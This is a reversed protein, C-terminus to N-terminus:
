YSVEVANSGPDIYVPGVGIPDELILPATTTVTVSDSDRTSVTISGGIAKITMKRPYGQEPTVITAAQNSVTAPWTKTTFLVDDNSVGNVQRIYPAEILYFGKKIQAVFDGSGSGSTVKKSSTSYSINDTVATGGAPVIIASTSSIITPM